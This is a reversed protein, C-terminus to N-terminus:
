LSMYATNRALGRTAVGGAVGGVAEVLVHDAGPDGGTCFLDEFTPRDGLLTGTPDVFQILGWLEALSNQIPTATLLLVPSAGIIKRM